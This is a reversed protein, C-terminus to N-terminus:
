NTYFVRSSRQQTLRLTSMISRVASAVFDKMRPQQVWESATIFIKLSKRHLLFYFSYM